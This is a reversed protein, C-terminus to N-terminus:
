KVIEYQWTTIGGFDYVSTYGLDSLIHAAQNSRNGSRCYVLITSNKDEIINSVEDKLNNLEINIANPIYGENFEEKTRVDLIVVNQTNIMNYAEEQSIVTFNQKKNCGFLFALSLLVAFIKM